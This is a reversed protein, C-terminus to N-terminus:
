RIRDVIKDYLDLDCHENKTFHSCNLCSPEKCDCAHSDNYYGEPRHTPAYESCAKAVDQYTEKSSKMFFSREADFTLVLLHTTKKPLRVSTTGTEM